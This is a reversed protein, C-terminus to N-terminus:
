KIKSRVETDIEPYHSKIYELYKVWYNVASASVVCDGDDIWVEEVMKNVM